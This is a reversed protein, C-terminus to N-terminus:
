WIDNEQPRPIGDLWTVKIVRNSREEKGVLGLPAAHTECTLNAPVLTEFRRGVDVRGVLFDVPWRSPEVGKSDWLFEM